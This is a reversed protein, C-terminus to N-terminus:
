LSNILDAKTPFLQEKRYSEYIRKGDQSLSYSESELISEFDLCSVFKRYHVMSVVACIARDNHMVWVQDGVKIDFVKKM